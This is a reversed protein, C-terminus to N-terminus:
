NRALSALSFALAAGTGLAHFFDGNVYSRALAPSGAPSM